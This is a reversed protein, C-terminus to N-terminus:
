CITNLHNQESNMVLLLKNILLGDVMLLGNYHVRGRHVNHILATATLINYLYITCACKRKHSRDAIRVTGVRYCHSFDVM